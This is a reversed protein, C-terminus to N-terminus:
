CKALSSNKLGFFLFVGNFINWGFFTPVTFYHTTFSLTWQATAVVVWNRIGLNPLFLYGKRVQNFLIKKWCFDLQQQAFKLDLPIEKKTNRRRIIHQRALLSSKSGRRRGVEHPDDVMQWSAPCLRWSKSCCNISIGTAKSSFSVKRGLVKLCSCVKSIHLYFAALLSGDIIVPYGTFNLAWKHCM